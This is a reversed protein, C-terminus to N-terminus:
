EQYSAEEVAEAEQIPTEDQSKASEEKSMEAAVSSIAETGLKLDEETGCEDVEPEEPIPKAISRIRQYENLMDEGMQVVIAVYGGDNYQFILAYRDKPAINHIYFYFEIGPYKETLASKSEYKVLDVTTSVYFYCAYASQKGVIKNVFFDYDTKNERIVLSYETSEYRLFLVIAAMVMGMGLTTFVVRYYGNLELCALVCGVIFLSLYIIRALGNSKKYTYTM